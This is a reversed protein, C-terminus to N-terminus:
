RKNNVVYNFWYLDYQVSPLGLEKRRNNIEKILDVNKNKLINLDFPILYYYSEINDKLSRKDIFRGYVKPPCLGTKVFSYIKAKYYDFCDYSSLHNFIVELDINKSNIENNIIKWSGVKRLSPFDKKTLQIRLLSDTELDTKVVERKEIGAVTRVKQDKYNMKDILNRYVTDLNRVFAKHLKNIKKESLRSKNFAILLLTDKKIEEIRYDYYRVLNKVDTKRVNNNKVAMKVYNEYEFYLTLNIPEYKKFLSDLITYSHKYNGAKYLSDAEYVKLYYPIYNANKDGIRTYSSKCSLMVFSIMFVLFINKKM